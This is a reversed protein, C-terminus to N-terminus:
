RRSREIQRALVQDRGALVILFEAKLSGRELTKRRANILNYRKVATGEVDFVIIAGGKRANSIKGFTRRKDVM